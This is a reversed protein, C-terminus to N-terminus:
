STASAIGAPGLQGSLTEAGFKGLELAIDVGVVGDGM